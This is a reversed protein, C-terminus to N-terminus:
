SLRPSPTRWIRPLFALVEKQSCFSAFFSQNTEHSEQRHCVRAFRLLRKKPEKKEFFSSRVKKHEM